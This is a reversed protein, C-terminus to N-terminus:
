DCQSLLKFLEKDYSNDNLRIGTKIKLDNLIDDRNDRNKFTITGGHEDIVRNVRVRNVRDFAKTSLLNREVAELYKTQKTKPM